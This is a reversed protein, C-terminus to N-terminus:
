LHLTVNPSTAHENIIEKLEHEYRQALSANEEPTFPNFKTQGQIDTYKEDLIKRLKTLDDREQITHASQKLFEVGEASYSARKKSTASSDLQALIEPDEIFLKFIDGQHKKFWDFTIIHVNPNGPLNCLTDVFPKWSFTVHEGRQRITDFKFFPHHKLSELYFSTIYSAYDRLTYIVTHEKALNLTAQLAFKLHASSVDFLSRGTVGLLNEESLIVQKYGDQLLKFQTRTARKHGGKVSKTLGGVERLEGLSPMGIGNKQLLSLHDNLVNQVWTTGTKHAGVHWVCRDLSPAQKRQFLSRIM